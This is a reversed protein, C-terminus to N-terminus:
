RMPNDEEPPEDCFSENMVDPNQRKWDEGFHEWITVLGLLEAGGDAAFRRGPATAIFTSPGGGQDRVIFIEYGKQRLILLAPNHTGFTSSLSFM